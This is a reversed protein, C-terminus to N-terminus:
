QISLTSAVLVAFTKDNHTTKKAITIIEVTNCIRKELIALLHAPSIIGNKENKKEKIAERTKNNFIGVVGDVSM